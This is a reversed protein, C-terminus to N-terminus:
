IADLSSYQYTTSDVTLSGSTLSTSASSGAGTTNVTTVM